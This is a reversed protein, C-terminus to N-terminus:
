WAEMNSNVRTAGVIDDKSLLKWPPHSDQEFVPVGLCEGGPNLGLETATKVADAFVPLGPCLVSGRHGEDGAFSLWWGWVPTDEPMGPPWQRILDQASM